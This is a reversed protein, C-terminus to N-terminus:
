GLNSFTERGSSIADRPVELAPLVLVPGTNGQRLLFWEGAASHVHDGLGGRFCSLRERRKGRQPLMCAFIYFPLYMSLTYLSFTGGVATM